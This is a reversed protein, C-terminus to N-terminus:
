SIQWDKGQQLQGDILCPRLNSDGGSSSSSSGSSSAAEVRECGWVARSLVDAAAM